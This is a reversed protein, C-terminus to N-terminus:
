VEEPMIRAKEILELGSQTLIMEFRFEPPASSLESIVLVDHYAHTRLHNILSEEDSWLEDLLVGNTVEGDRYVHCRLCGPEYRAQQVFSGLFRLVEDCKDSPILMRVSAHIM